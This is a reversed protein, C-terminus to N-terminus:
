AAYHTALTKMVPNLTMKKPMILAAPALLRYAVKPPYESEAYGIGRWGEHFSERTLTCEQNNTGSLTYDGAVSFCDCPM